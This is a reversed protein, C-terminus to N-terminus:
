GQPFHFLVKMVVKELQFFGFFFNDVVIGELTFKTNNEVYKYHDWTPSTTDRWYIKYGKAGEVENWQLKVAPEVAGGIKVNEPAPPAWGINALNIANVATLKKAYEFNVFKLLDGYEIGNENRIDQHQQTYNEHMEMIRIGAFGLDNFPRHHGGRGFRDLRYIMKPQM